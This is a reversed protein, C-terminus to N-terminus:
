EEPLELMVVYLDKEHDNSAFRSGIETNMSFLYSLVVDDVFIYEKSQPSYTIILLM